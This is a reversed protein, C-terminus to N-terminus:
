LSDSKQFQLRVTQVLKSGYQDKGKFKLHANLCSAVSKICVPMKIAKM